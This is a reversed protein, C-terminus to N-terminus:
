GYGNQSMSGIIKNGVVSGVTSLAWSGWGGAGGAQGGVAADAAPKGAEGEHGMQARREDVQQKIHEQLASLVQFASDCVGVDPDVLRVCVFPLMKTALEDVSFVSCTALLTQLSANRCPAFPDKFGAALMTALTQNAVGTPLHSSIRGCCIVANTRISAEADSMVKVLLKVVRSEVTKPKLRPVFFILSKVTAERIPGSSDTFGNVCEPFIKDNIMGDDLLDIMEGLSTLLRFRIARDASAFLQAVLPAVSAKFEDDKLRIGIKLIAPLVQAAEQGPFKQAELLEPLVQKTQLSQPATDILRPLTEFFSDKEDQSKIHLNGLFSMIRVSANQEFYPHQLIEAVPSRGRLPGPKVFEAFPKRLETPLDQAARQMDVRFDVGRRAAKASGFIYAALLAAGWLDVGITPSGSDQLYAPPESWGMLNIGCRRRQALLASADADKRCLDFVGLRYDGRPTVLIAAPGFLGHTFGSQHLFSLGELAEYLGWVAADRDDPDTASESLLPVVQETVLYFGSEVEISDLARVIRTHRLSKAMQVANKAAAVQQMDLDKKGCVFVSVASGDSKKQGKHLDWHWSFPLDVKDGVTFGFSSPLEGFGVKSLISKFM